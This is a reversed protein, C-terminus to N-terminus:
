PDPLAKVNENDVFFLIGSKVSRPMIDPLRVLIERHIDRFGTDIIVATRASDNAKIAPLNTM